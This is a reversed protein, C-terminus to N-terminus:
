LTVTAEPVEAPNVTAVLVGGGGRGERSGKWTTKYSLM